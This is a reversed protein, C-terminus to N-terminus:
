CYSYYSELEKFFGVGSIFLGYYFKSINIVVEEGISGVGWVWYVLSEGVSFINVFVLNVRIECFYLIYINEVRWGWRELVCM